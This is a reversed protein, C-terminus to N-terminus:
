NNQYYYYFYRYYKQRAELRTPVPHDSSLLNRPRTVTETCKAVVVQRPDHTQTKPRPDQTKPKPDQTRPEVKYARGDGTYDTSTDTLM